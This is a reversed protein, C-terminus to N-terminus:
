RRESGYYIYSIAKEINDAGTNGLYLVYADNNKILFLLAIEPNVHSLPFAKVTM